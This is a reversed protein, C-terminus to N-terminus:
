AAASKRRVGYAFGIASLMLVASPPLPVAAPPVTTFDITLMPRNPAFGLESADIDVRNNGTPLFGWGLNARTGAAWAVVSATVDLFTFNGGGDINATPTALANAGPGSTQIGGGFSNWTVTSENGFDATLDHLTIDHGTDDIDFFLTASNIISGAQIQHAGNGFIDDFRLVAQAENGGGTNGDIVLENGGSGADYNSNPNAERLEADHTGTYTVGTDAGDLLISTDQRFQITAAPASLSLALVGAGTLTALTNKIKKTNTNM